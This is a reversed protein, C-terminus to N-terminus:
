RNRVWERQEPVLPGTCSNDIVKVSKITGLKEIYTVYIEWMQHCQSASRPGDVIADNEWRRETETYRALGDEEDENPSYWIEFFSIM